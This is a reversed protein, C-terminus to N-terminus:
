KTKYAPLDDIRSAGAMLAKNYYEKAFTIFANYGDINDPHDASFVHAKDLIKYYTDVVNCLYESQLM